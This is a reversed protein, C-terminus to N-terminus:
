ENGSTALVIYQGRISLTDPDNTHTWRAQSSDLSFRSFVRGDSNLFELKDGVVRWSSENRNQGEGVLGDSLFTMVKKGHPPNYFLIWRSSTLMSLLDQRASEGSSPVQSARLLNVFDEISPARWARWMERGLWVVSCVGVIFYVAKWTAAPLWADKFNATVLTLGLTILIGLPTSWGYKRRMHSLHTHVALQVKDETITIIRGGVNFFVQTNQILNEALQQVINGQAPGTPGTVPRSM